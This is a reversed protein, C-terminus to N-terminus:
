WRFCAAIFKDLTCFRNRQFISLFLDYATTSRKENHADGRREVKGQIDELFLCLIPMICAHRAVSLHLRNWVSRPKFPQTFGAYPM